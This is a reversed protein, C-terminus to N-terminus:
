ACAAFCPILFVMARTEDTVKVLLSRDVCEVKQMLEQAMDCAYAFAAADDSLMVAREAVDLDHSDARVTFFYQRM